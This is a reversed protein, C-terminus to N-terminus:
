DKKKEDNDFKAAIVKKGDDLTSSITNKFGSIITSGMEVAENMKGEAEKSLMIIDSKLQEPVEKLETRFKELVGPLTGDVKKVVTNISDVMGSYTEKIKERTQKGTQPAVVLGLLAGAMSGLVTAVAIFASSVGKNEENKSM